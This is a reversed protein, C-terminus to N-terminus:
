SLYRLQILELFHRYCSDRWKNNFLYTLLSNEMSDRDLNWEEPIENLIEQVNRECKSTCIYYDERIENLLDGERLEKVTFLNKALDTFLLSEDQTLLVLGYNLNGTNFVQDHDIPIFRNNNETDILLNYNNHNRDENGLWIDFLAIKLLEVRAPFNSREGKSVQSYFEDVEAYRNSYKSGFCLTNFFAPQLKSFNEIHNQSVQVFLFDPVGLNWLKGFSGALYERILKGATQGPWRNYKCVYRFPVKQNPKPIMIDKPNCIHFCHISRM